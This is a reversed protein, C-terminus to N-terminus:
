QAWEEIMKKGIGIGVISVTGDDMRRFDALLHGARATRIIAECRQQAHKVACDAAQAFTSFKAPATDITFM